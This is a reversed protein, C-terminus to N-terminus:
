RRPTTSRPKAVHISIAAIQPPTLAHMNRLHHGYSKRRVSQIWTCPLTASASAFAFAFAFACGTAVHLPYKLIYSGTNLEAQKPVITLAAFVAHLHRSPATYSKCCYETRYARFVSWIEAPPPPCSPCPAIEAAAGCSQGESHAMEM